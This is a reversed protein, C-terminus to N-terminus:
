SAPTKVKMLEQLDGTKNFDYLRQMIWHPPYKGKSLIHVNKAIKSFPYLLSTVQLVARFAETFTNDGAHSIVLELGLYILSLSIIMESTKNLFVKVSFKQKNWHMVGGFIMNLVVLVIVAYFFTENAIYWRNVAALIFAIPAFLIFSKCFSELREPWSIERYGILILNTYIKLLSIKLLEM